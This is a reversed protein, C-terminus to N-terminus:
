GFYFPFLHFWGHKWYLEVCYYVAAVFASVGLVWTLILQQLEIKKLRNNESADSIFKGNYGGDEWFLRGEFTISCYNLLGNRMDNKGDPLKPYDPYIHVYKDHSLMGLMRETEVQNGTIKLLDADEKITDYLIARVIDKRDYLYKLVADIQQIAQM